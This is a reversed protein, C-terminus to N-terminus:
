VSSEHRCPPEIRHTRADAFGFAPVILQVRPRSSARPADNASAVSALAVIAAALVALSAMLWRHRSLLWAFSTARASTDFRGHTGFDGPAPAFLNDIRDARASEGTQQSDYADRAAKRDGFGGPLLRAALISKVAPWGVWLERRRHMAAWVLAEGALEPQFIPPVPQLRRPLKSRAWDFQPTNFASLQVMTLRINSRDHILECRLADTFGRIAAKAGCYASQLPISRYALASGTQIIVGSGRPQMRRLAALTGHVVGLYSVETVRLYEEATTDQARAFVTTSANNVWISIPGLEREILAAAQEVQKADAVDTPVALARGGAARVAACTSELRENGRALVAVWYGRRAFAEVAARGIGASGGAVVAIQPMEM